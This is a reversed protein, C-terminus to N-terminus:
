DRETSSAATRSSVYDVVGQVTAGPSYFVANDEDPIEIRFELELRFMLELLDISDGGLSPLTVSLDDGIDVGMENAALYKVRQAISGHM